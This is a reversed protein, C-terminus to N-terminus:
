AEPPWIRRDAPILAGIPDGARAQVSVGTAALVDNLLDALAPKSARIRVDQGGSWVLIDGFQLCVNSQNTGEVGQADARVNASEIQPILDAAVGAAKSVAYFYAQVAAAATARLDQQGTLGSVLGEAAIVVRAVEAAAADRNMQEARRQAAERRLQAFQALGRAQAIEDASVSLDGTRVREELAAVLAAAEDAEALADEVSPPQDAQKTKTPM